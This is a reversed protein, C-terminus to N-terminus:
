RGPWRRDPLGHAGLRRERRYRDRGASRSQRDWRKRRARGRAQSRRRSVRRGSREAVQSPRRRRGARHDGRHRRGDGGVDGGGAALSSGPAALGAPLRTVVAAGRWAAGDLQAWGPWSRGDASRRDGPLGRAHRRGVLSARRRQDLRGRRLAGPPRHVSGRIPCDVADAPPRWRWPSPANWSSRRM